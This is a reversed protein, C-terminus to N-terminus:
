YYRYEDSTMLSYYIVLPKLSANLKIQQKLYYAEFANPERNYFKKYTSIVFASTDSPITLPIQLGGKNLFNRIIRDEILKKDGFASYVTNLKVLDVQSISFGFLDSYAISIFETTNKSNVKEAGAQKVNVNQLQYIYDDDKKCSTYFVILLFLVIKIQNM